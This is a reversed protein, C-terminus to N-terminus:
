APAPVAAAGGLPPSHRPRMRLRAGRQVRGSRLLDPQLALARADAPFAREATAQTAAATWAIPSQHSWAATCAVTARGQGFARRAIELKARAERESATAIPLLMSPAAAQFSQATSAAGPVSPVGCRVISVGKTECTLPGYRAIKRPCARSLVTLTTPRQLRANRGSVQALTSRRVSLSPSDVRIRRPPCHPRSCVTRAPPM